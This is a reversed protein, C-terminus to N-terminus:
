GKSRDQGLTKNTEACVMKSVTWELVESLYILFIGPSTDTTEHLPLYIKSVPRSLRRLSLCLPHRAFSNKIYALPPKAAVSAFIRARM